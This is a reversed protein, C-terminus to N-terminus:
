ILKSCPKTGKQPWKKAEFKEFSSRLINVKNDINLAQKKGGPKNSFVSAFTVNSNRRKRKRANNNGM